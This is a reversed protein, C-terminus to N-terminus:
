LLKVIQPLTKIYHYSISEKMEMFNHNYFEPPQSNFKSNDEMSFKQNLNIGFSVDSYGVKYDIFKDFSFLIDHHILYGAGGSPYEVSHDIIKYIPNGHDKSHKFISGHVKKTDATKIFNLLNEVNVFTDDDCCFYWDYGDRNKLIYNLSNIHKEENSHYDTRDSVKVVNKTIDEHDSYFLIDLGKGWTNLINDQRVINMRSTMIDFLIKM